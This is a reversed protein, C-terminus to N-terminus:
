VEGGRLSVSRADNFRAKVFLYCNVAWSATDTGPVSCACVKKGLTMMQKRPAPGYIIGAPTAMQALRIQRNVRFLNGVKQIHEETRSTSPHCSLNKDTVSTREVWVDKTSERQRTSHVAVVVASPNACIQSGTDETIIRSSAITSQPTWLSPM